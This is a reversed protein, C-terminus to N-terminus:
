TLREKFSAPFHMPTGAITLTPQALHRVVEKAEEYRTARFAWTQSDHMGFKYLADRGFYDAIALFIVTEIAQVGAQMPHDLMEGKLYTNGRGLYRRRRGDWARTEGTKMGVAVVENQWQALRPFMANRAYSMQMLDKQTLGLRKSGPINSAKSPTGGYSQRHGFQKSFVRRIDDKGCLDETHLCPQWRYQLRWDANEEAHVPDKLTPPLPLKFMACCAMLHLDWGKALGELMTPDKCNAAVLRLEIQDHDFTIWPWGPDPRYIFRLDRPTQALPPDTYSWRANAQTHTAISHYIRDLILV